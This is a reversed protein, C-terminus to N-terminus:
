VPIASRGRLSFQRTESCLYTTLFVFFQCPSAFTLYFFFYPFNYQWIRSALRTFNFGEFFHPAFRLIRLHKMATRHSYTCLWVIWGCRSWIGSMFPIVALGWETTFFCSCCGGVTPAAKIFVYCQLRLAAIVPKMSETSAQYRITFASDFSSPHPVDTSSGGALDSNQDTRVEVCPGSRAGTVARATALVM